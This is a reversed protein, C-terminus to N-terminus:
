VLELTLTLNILGRHRAITQVQEVCEANIDFATVRSGLSALPLTIGDGGCAVELIALNAFSRGRRAAFHEIAAYIFRLKERGVADSYTTAELFDLAYKNM